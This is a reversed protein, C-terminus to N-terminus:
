QVGANDARAWLEDFRKKFREVIVPNTLYVQNENNARAAHNTYNFSGTELMKGDVITFKNHMIGRQHGYKVQAGAKLLLPVLSHSGKAQRRDVVIRVPIKKGLVLAQHVLADLNLDYIAIDLSTKASEMFKILKLDCPESPSFCVEQDLPADVMASNISKTINDLLANKHRRALAPLSAFGLLLVLHVIIIRLSM